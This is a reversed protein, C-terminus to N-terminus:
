KKPTVIDVAKEISVEKATPDANLMGLIKPELKALIAKRDLGFHALADPAAKVVYEIADAVNANGVEIRVTKGDPIVKGVLLNSANNLADQLSKRHGEDVDIKWKTRLWLSVYGVFAMILLGIFETLLSRIPGLDIDIGTDQAFATDAALTVAAIMAFFYFM